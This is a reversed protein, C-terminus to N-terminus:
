STGEPSAPISSSREVQLLSGGQLIRGPCTQPPAQQHLRHFPCRGQYFPDGSGKLNRKRSSAFCNPRRPSPCIGSKTWSSLGTTPWSSSAKKRHRLGTFSGKEHGFLESEAVGRSHRRLQTERFAKGQAHQSLIHEPLLNRAREAKGRSSCRRM